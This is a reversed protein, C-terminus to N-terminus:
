RATAACVAELLAGSTTEPFITDETQENSPVDWSVFEGNPLYRIFSLITQTRGVCDYRTRAKTERYKTRRDRSHDAREFITVKDGSRRVSLSDYYWISGDRDTFVHVWNASQAPATAALIATAAVLFNVSRM